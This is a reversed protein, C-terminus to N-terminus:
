CLLQSKGPFMFLIEWLYLDPVPCGFLGVHTYVLFLLVDQECAGGTLLDREQDESM